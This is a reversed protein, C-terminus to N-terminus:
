TSECTMETKLLSYIEAARADASFAPVATQHAALAIRTREEPAKMYHLVQAALESGDEFMPVGAAEYLECVYDTRQHIFFCHAAALEYSRTTDVDGPQRQGDIIVDRTLPAICIKGSRLGHVYGQGPMGGLLEWDAPLKEKLADWGRGGIAVRLRANGLAQAFDLMLRGYEARYTAIMVVDYPYETQPEPALHLRPEYGQPVFACRNQYGYVQNWLGPHYVKTSIVLDYNGVAKQHAKGHAHPSCDPYINVTKVGMASVRRLLDAYVFNGKYTVLFDPSNHRVKDLVQNNFDQRYLPRTIRNLARLGRSRVKPLFGDEALEDLEIAPNRALAEKTSRAGSGLWTEGVFLIKM